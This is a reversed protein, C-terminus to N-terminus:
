STRPANVDLESVEGQSRVRAVGESMNLEMLRREHELRALRMRHEHELEAIRRENDLEALRRQHAASDSRPSEPKPSPQQQQQPSTQQQQPVQHGQLEPPYYEFKPPATLAVGHGPIEHRIPEEASLETQIRMPSSGDTGGTTTIHSQEKTESAALEPKHWSRITSKRAPESRTFMDRAAGERMPKRKRYRCFWVFFIVLALGAIGGVVAGAIAGAHSKSSGPSSTNNATATASTLNDTTIVSTPTPVGSTFPVNIASVASGFNDITSSPNPTQVTSSPNLVRDIVHIVGNAALVNPM